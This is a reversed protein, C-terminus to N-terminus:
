AHLRATLDTAALYVLVGTHPVGLFAFSLAMEKECCWAVPGNSQCFSINSRSRVDTRLQTLFVTSKVSLCLVNHPAGQIHTNWWSVTGPCNTPNGTHHTPRAEQMNLMCAEIGASVVKTYQPSQNLERSLPAM